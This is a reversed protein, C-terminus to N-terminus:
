TRPASPANKYRVSIKIKFYTDCEDDRRRGKPSGEYGRCPKTTEFETLKREVVEWRLLRDLDLGGGYCRPNRCDILAPVTDFTYVDLWEPQQGFPEFGEGHPRVEVRLSEIMPYAERFTSTRPAFPRYTQAEVDSLKMHRKKTM